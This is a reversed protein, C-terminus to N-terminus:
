DKFFFSAGSVVGIFCFVTYIRNVTVAGLLEAITNGIAMSLYNSSSAIGSAIALYESPFFTPDNAMVATQTVSCAFVTQIIGILIMVLMFRDPYADIVTFCVLSILAARTVMVAMSVRDQFVYSLIRGIVHCVGFIVTIWLFEGGHMAGCFSKDENIINNEKILAPVLLMAGYYPVGRGIASLFLKTVRSFISFGGPYEYNKIHKPIMQQFLPTKEDDSNSNIVIVRSPDDKGILEDKIETTTTEHQSKLGCKDPHSEPLVFQLLILPLIFTPISCILIFYRWSMRELLFYGLFGCWGGGITFFTIGVTIAMACFSKSSAIESMYVYSTSANLAISFGLFIRSLLLAVYNAVLSCMVTAFIALYIAVLLVLRRGFRDSFPIAFLISIALTIYLSLALVYEQNHSLELECSVQQTIVSPIFVEVANDFQILAQTFLALYQTSKSFRDKHLSGQPTM